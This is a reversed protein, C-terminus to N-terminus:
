YEILYEENECASCKDIIVKWKGKILEPLINKFLTIIEEESYFANTKDDVDYDKWRGYYQEKEKANVKRLLELKLSKYEYPIVVGGLYGGVQCQPNDIEVNNVDIRISAYYHQVGFTSIYLKIIRYEPNKYDCYGKTIYQKKDINFTFGEGYNSKIPFSICEGDYFHDTIIDKM